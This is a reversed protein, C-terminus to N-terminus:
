RLSWALPVSCAIVVCRERARESVLIERTKLLEMFDMDKKKANIKTSIVGKKHFVVIRWKKTAEKMMKMM